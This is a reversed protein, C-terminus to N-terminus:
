KEEVEEMEKAFDHMLEAVGFKCSGFCNGNKEKCLSCSNTSLVIMHKTNDFHFNETWRYGYHSGYSCCIHPSSIRCIHHRSSLNYAIDSVCLRCHNRDGSRYIAVVDSRKM